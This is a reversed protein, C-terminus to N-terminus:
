KDKRKLIYVRYNAGDHAKFSYSFQGAFRNVMRDYLKTRSAKEVHGDIDAAKSATFHIEEPKREKVFEILIKMVTAFIKFADGQDTTHDHGDRDFAVTFLEPEEEIIEVTIDSGDDTTFTYIWFSSNRLNEQADLKYSYTSNFVELLLM